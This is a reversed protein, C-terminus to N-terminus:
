LEMRDVVGARQQELFELSRSFFRLEFPCNVGEPHECDYCKGDLEIWVHGPQILALKALTTPNFRSLASLDYRKKLAPMDWGNTDPDILSLTDNTGWRGDGWEAYIWDPGAWALMVDCAFNECLGNGIDWDSHGHDNYSARVALIASKLTEQNKLHRDPQASM